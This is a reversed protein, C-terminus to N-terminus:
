RATMLVFLLSVVLRSFRSKPISTSSGSSLSQGGTLGGPSSGLCGENM